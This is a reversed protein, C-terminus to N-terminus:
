LTCWATMINVVLAKEVTQWSDGPFLLNNTVLSQKEKRFLWGSGVPDDPCAKKHGKESRGHKCLTPSLFEGLLM